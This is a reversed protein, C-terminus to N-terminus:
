RAIGQDPSAHGSRQGAPLNRQPSTQLSRCAGMWPALSHAKTYHHVEVAIGFHKVNGCADASNHVPVSPHPTVQHFRIRSYQDKLVTKMRELVELFSNSLDDVITVRAGAEVLAISTHSGAPLLATAPRDVREASACEGEM